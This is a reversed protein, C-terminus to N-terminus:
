RTRPNSFPRPWGWDRAARPLLGLKELRSAIAEAPPTSIEPVNSLSFAQVVKLIEIPATPIAEVILASDGTSGYM